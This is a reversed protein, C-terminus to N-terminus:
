IHKFALLADLVLSWIVLYIFNSFGLLHTDLNFCLLVKPSISCVILISIFDLFLCHFYVHYCLRNQQAVSM